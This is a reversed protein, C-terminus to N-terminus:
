YTIHSLPNRIASQPNRIASQPNLKADYPQATMLDSRKATMPCLAYLM